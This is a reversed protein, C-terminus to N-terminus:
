HYYVTYAKNDGIPFNIYNGCREIVVFDKIKHIQKIWDNFILEDNDKYVYMGNCGCRCGMNDGYYIKIISDFNIKNTDLLTSGSVDHISCQQKRTGFLWKWLKKM